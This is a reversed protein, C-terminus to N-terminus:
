GAVAVPEPSSATSRACRAVGCGIASGTSPTYAFPQTGRDHGPSNQSGVGAQKGDGDRSSVHSGLYPSAHSDSANGTAAIRKSRESM